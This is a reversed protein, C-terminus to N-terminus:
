REELPYLEGYTPPLHIETSQGGISEDDVDQDERSIRVAGGDRHRVFTYGRQVGGGRTQEERRASSPTEGADGRMLVDDETRWSRVSTSPSNAIGSDVGGGGGGGGRRSDYTPTPSSLTQYTNSASPNSQSQSHLDSFPSLLNRTTTTGSTMTGNLRTWGGFGAGGSTPTRTSGSGGSWETGSSPGAETKTDVELRPRATTPPVAVYTGQLDRESYESNVGESYTSLTRAYSSGDQALMDFESNDTYISESYSTAVSVGPLHHSPDGFPGRRDLAAAARPPPPIPLVVVDQIDRQLIRQPQPQPQPHQQRGFTSSPLPTPTNISERKGWGKGTRSRKEGDGPTYNLRRRRRRYLYCGLVMVVIGLTVGVSAIVAVTTSVPKKEGVYPSASVDAASAASTVSTLNTNSNGDGYSSGNEIQQFSPTSTPSPSRNAAASYVVWSSPSATASASSSHTRSTTTSTTSPVYFNGSADIYDITVISSTTEPMPIIEITNSNTDNSM